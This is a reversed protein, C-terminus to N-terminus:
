LQAIIQDIAAMLAKRHHAPYDVFPGDYGDFGRGYYTAGDVVITIECIVWYRFQESSAIGLETASVPRAGSVLVDLNTPRTNINLARLQKLIIREARVKAGAEKALRDRLILVRDPTFHADGVVYGAYPLPERPSTDIKDKAPRMDVISVDELTPGPEYHLNHVYGCGTLVFAFILLVANQSYM